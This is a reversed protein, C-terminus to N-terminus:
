VGCSKVTNKEWVGRYVHRWGVVSGAGNLCWQPHVLPGGSSCAQCWGEAGLNLQDECVFTVICVSVAWGAMAQIFCHDSPFLFGCTAVYSFM